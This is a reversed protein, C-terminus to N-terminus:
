SSLSTVTVSESCVASDPPRKSNVSRSRASAPSAANSAVAATTLACEAYSTAGAPRVSVGATRAAGKSGPASCIKAPFHDRCRTLGTRPRRSTATKQKERAGPKTLEGSTCRINQPRATPTPYNQTTHAPAIQNYGLSVAHDRDAKQCGGRGRRPRSGGGRGVYRRGLLPRHHLLARGAPAAQRAESAHEAARRSLPLGVRAGERPVRTAAAGPRERRQGCFWWSTDRNRFIAPGRPLALARCGPRWPQTGM